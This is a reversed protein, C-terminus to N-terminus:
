AKKIAESLERIPIVGNERAERVLAALQMREIEKKRFQYWMYNGSESWMWASQAVMYLFILGTGYVTYALCADYFASKRLYFTYWNVNKRLLRWPTFRPDATAM